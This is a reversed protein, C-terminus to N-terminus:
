RIRNRENMPTDIGLKQNPMIKIQFGPQSILWVYRYALDGTTESGDATDDAAGAVPFMSLLCCLSLALSILRQPFKKKLFKAM